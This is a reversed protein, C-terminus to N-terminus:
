WQSKETLFLFFLRSMSSHYVRFTPPHGTARLVLFMLFMLFMIDLLSV